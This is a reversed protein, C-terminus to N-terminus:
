APPFSDIFVYTPRPNTGCTDSVSSIDAYYSGTYGAGFSYTFSTGTVVTNYFLSNDQSTFLLIRYRDAGAVAAWSLTASFLSGNFTRTVTVPGVPGPPGSCVTVPGFEQSLGTVPDSGCTNSVSLITVSYNGPDLPAGTENASIIVSTSTTSFSGVLMEQGPPTSHYVNITYSDAGTVGTFDLQITGDSLAEFTQVSTVAPPKQCTPPCNLYRAEVLKRSPVNNSTDAVVSSCTLRATGSQDFTQTCLFSKVSNHRM